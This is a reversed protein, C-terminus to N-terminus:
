IQVLLQEAQRITIRIHQLLEAGIEIAISGFAADSALVTTGVIMDCDRARLQEPSSLRCEVKQLCIDCVVPLKVHKKSGIEDVDGLHNRRKKFRDCCQEGLRSTAAKDHRVTRSPLPVFDIDIHNQFRCFGDPQFM